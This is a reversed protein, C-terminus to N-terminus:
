LLGFSMDAKMIVASFTIFIIKYTNTKHHWYNECMVVKSM